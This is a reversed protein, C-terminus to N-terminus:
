QDPGLFAHDSRRCATFFKIGVRSSLCILSPIDVCANIDRFSELKSLM